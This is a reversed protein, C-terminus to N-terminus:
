IHTELPPAFIGDNGVGEWLKLQEEPLTDFLHGRNRCLGLLMRSARKCCRSASTRSKVSGVVRYGLRQYLGVANTGPRINLANGELAQKKVGARQRCQIPM